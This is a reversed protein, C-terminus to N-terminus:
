DELLDRLWNTYLVEALIPVDESEAKMLGQIVEVCAPDSLAQLFPDTLEEVIAHEGYKDLGILIFTVANEWEVACAALFLSSLFPPGHTPSILFPDFLHPLRQLVLALLEIARKQLVFPAEFILDFIAPLINEHRRFIAMEAKSSGVQVFRCLARLAFRARLVDTADLIAECLADSVVEDALLAVGREDVFRFCQMLALHSSPFNRFLNLILMQKAVSTFKSPKASMQWYLLLAVCEATHPAVYEISANVFHEAHEHKLQAEECDQAIFMLACDLRPHLHYWQVLRPLVSHELFFSQFEAKTFFSRLSLIINEFFLIEDNSPSDPPAPPLVDLFLELVAQDYPANSFWLLACLCDLCAASELSPSGRFSELLVGFLGSTSVLSCIKLDSCHCIVSLLELSQHHESPNGDMFADILSELIHLLDCTEMISLHDLQRNM